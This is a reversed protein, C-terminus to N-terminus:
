ESSGKFWGICVGIIVLGTIVGRIGRMNGGVIAFVSGVTILAGVAMGIVAFIRKGIGPTDGSNKKSKKKGGKRKKPAPMAPEDGYAGLDGGFDDGDNWEDEMADAPDIVNIAAGCDKCKIRRGALSDKLRYRKGCDDCQLDITMIPAKSAYCDNM